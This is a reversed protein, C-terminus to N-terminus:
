AFRFLNGPTDEDDRGKVIKRKAVHQPRLAVSIARTARPAAFRAAFTDVSCSRIAANAFCDGSIAKVESASQLESCCFTTLRIDSPM